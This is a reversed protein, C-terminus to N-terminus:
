WHLVQTGERKRLHSKTEILREVVQLSARVQKVSRLPLRAGFRIIVVCVGSKACM